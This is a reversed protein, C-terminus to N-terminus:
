FYKFQVHKSKPEQYKNHKYDWNRKDFFTFDIRLWFLTVSICFGPQHTKRTWQTFIRFWEPPDKDLLLTAEIAKNKTVNLALGAESFRNSKNTFFGVRKTKTSM